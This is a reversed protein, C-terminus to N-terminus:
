VKQSDGPQTTEHLSIKCSFAKLQGQKDFLPPHSGQDGQSLTELVLVRKRGGKLWSGLSAQKSESIVKTSLLTTERPWHLLHQSGADTLFYM